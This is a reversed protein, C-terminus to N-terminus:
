KVMSVYMYMTVDVNYCLLEPKNSPISNVVTRMRM